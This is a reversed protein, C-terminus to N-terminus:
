NELIKNNQKPKESLKRTKKEASAPKEKITRSQTTSLPPVVDSVSIPLCLWQPHIFTMLYLPRRMLPHM